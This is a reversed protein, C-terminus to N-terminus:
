VSIAEIIGLVMYTVLNHDTGSMAARLLVALCQQKPQQTVPLPTVMKRKM